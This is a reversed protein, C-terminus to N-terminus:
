PKNLHIPPIAFHRHKLYFVNFYVVAHDLRDFPDGKLDVLAFDDGQDPGVARPLGRDQMRDGAQQGWLLTRHNKLPFVDRLDRRVLDHGQPHGM